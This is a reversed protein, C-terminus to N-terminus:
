YEERWYEGAKLDLWENVTHLWNRLDFCRRGLWALLLYRIDNKM